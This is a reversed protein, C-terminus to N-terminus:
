THRDPGYMILSLAFKNHWLSGINRSHASIGDCDQALYINPVVVCLCCKLRVYGVAVECYENLWTKHITQRLSIWYLINFVSNTFEESSYRPSVLEHLCWVTTILDFDSNNAKLWKKVVLFVHFVEEHPRCLIQRERACVWYLNLRLNRM